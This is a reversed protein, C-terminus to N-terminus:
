TIHSCLYLSLSNCRPPTNVRWSLSGCPRRHGQWWRFKAPSFRRHLKGGLADFRCRFFMKCWASGRCFLLSSLAIPTDFGLQGIPNNVPLGNLCCCSPVKPLTKHIFVQKSFARSLLEAASNWLKLRTKVFEKWVRKACCSFNRNKLWDTWRNESVQHMIVDFLRRLAGACGVSSAPPLPSWSPVGLCLLTKCYERAPQSSSFGFAWYHQSIHIFLVNTQVCLYDCPGFRSSVDRLLSEPVVLFTMGSTAEAKLGRQRPFSRRNQLNTVSIVSLQLEEFYFCSCRPNIFYQECM